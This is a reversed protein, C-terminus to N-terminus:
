CPSGGGCGVMSGGKLYHCILISSLVLALINLGTLLWRWWPWSKQPHTSDKSIAM